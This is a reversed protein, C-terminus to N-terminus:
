RSSAAPCASLADDYRAALALQGRPSPHVTDTLIPGDAQDGAEYAAVAASWDVVDIRPDAAALAAMSRNLEAARDAASGGATVIGENVTVLHICTAEPFAAVVDGLDAASRVLDDGRTVDNTGLNVIVQTPHGAALERAAPLQQAVTYGSRGDVHLDWRAGLVRHLSSQGQETISDGVIAVTPRADVEPDSSRTALVVVGALVASSVLGFLVAVLWLRRPGGDVGGGGAAGPV